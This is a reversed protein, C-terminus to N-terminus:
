VATRTWHLQPQLLYCNAILERMNGWKDDRCESLYHGESVMSSDDLSADLLESFDLTPNYQLLQKECATGEKNGNDSRSGGAVDLCDGSLQYPIMMNSEDFM